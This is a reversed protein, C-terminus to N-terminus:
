ICVVRLVARETYESADRRGRRERVRETEEDKEIYGDKKIM